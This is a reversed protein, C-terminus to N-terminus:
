RQQMTPLFSFSGYNSTFSEVEPQLHKPWQNIHNNTIYITHLKIGSGGYFQINVALM